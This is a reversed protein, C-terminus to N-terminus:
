GELLRLLEEVEQLPFGELSGHEAVMTRLLTRTAESQAIIYGSERWLDEGMIRCSSLAARAIQRLALDDSEDLIAQAVQEQESKSKALALLTRVVAEGKPQPKPYTSPVLYIAGSPCADVCLRCGDLCADFDIQGTETNTAGTPCIFLCVCDKNCLQINRAAHM